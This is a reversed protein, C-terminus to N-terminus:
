AVSKFDGRRYSIAARIIAIHAKLPTEVLRGMAIEFDRMLLDFDDDIKGSSLRTQILGLLCLATHYKDGYQKSRNLCEDFTEHAAQLRGQSLHLCAQAHLFEVWDGTNKKLPEPIKIKQIPVDERLR